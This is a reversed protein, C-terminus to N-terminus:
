AGAPKYTVNSPFVRVPRHEKGLFLGARPSSHANWDSTLPQLRQTISTSSRWRSRSSADPSSKGSPPCPRKGSPSWPRTVSKSSLETSTKWRSERTKSPGIAGGAGSPTRGGQRVFMPPFGHLPLHFRAVGEPCLADLCPNELEVLGPIHRM